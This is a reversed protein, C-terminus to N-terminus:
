LKIMKKKKVFKQLYEIVINIKLFIEIDNEVDFDWYIKKGNICVKFSFYKKIIGEFIKFFMM